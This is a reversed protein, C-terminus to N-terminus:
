KGYYECLKSKVRKLVEECELKIAYLNMCEQEYPNFYICKKTTNSEKFYLCYDKDGTCKFVALCGNSKLTHGENNLADSM